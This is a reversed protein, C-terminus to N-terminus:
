CRGCFPGAFDPGARDVETIEGVFLAIFHFFDM